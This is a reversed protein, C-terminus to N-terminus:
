KKIKGQLFFDSQEAHLKTERKKEEEVLSFIEQFLTNSDSKM